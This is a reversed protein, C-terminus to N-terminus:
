EYNDMNESACLTSRESREMQHWPTCCFISKQTEITLGSNKSAYLSYDDESM